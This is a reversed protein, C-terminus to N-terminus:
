AATRATFTVTRAAVAPDESASDFRFARAVAQVDANSATANFTVTLATGGSASTASLTGVSVGNVLVGTGATTGSGACFTLRDAADAGATIQAKISGGNWQSNPDTVTVAPDILM